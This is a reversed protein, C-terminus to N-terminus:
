VFPHRAMFQAQAALHKTLQAQGALYRRAQIVGPLKEVMLLVHPPMAHALRFFVAWVGYVHRPNALDDWQFVVGVARTPRSIGGPPDNLLGGEGRGRRRRPPQDALLLLRRVHQRQIPEIIPREDAPHRSQMWM